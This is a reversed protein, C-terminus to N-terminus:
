RANDLSASIRESVDLLTNIEQRLLRLAATNGQLESELGWLGKAVDVIRQNENAIAVLYDREIVAM